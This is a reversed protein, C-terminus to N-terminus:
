APNIDDVTHKSLETLLSCNKFSHNPRADMACATTGRGSCCMAVSGATRRAGPGAPGLGM